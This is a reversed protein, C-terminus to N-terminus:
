IQLPRVPGLDARVFTLPGQPAAPMWRAACIRGIANLLTQARLIATTDTRDYDPAIEVLDIGIWCKATFSNVM